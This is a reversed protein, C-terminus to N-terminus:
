EGRGHGSLELIALMREPTLPWRRSRGGCADAVANAIAPLPADIAIEGVGKMGFPGTHETEAVTELDMPPADLSCPIIYTALDPTLLRGQDSLIEEHLAWGIGQVIGGHMQQRYLDPNILRGCDTAALYRCVRVAGTLTDIEVLALHAAFSFVLHPIGHMRLVPDVAPNDRATPARHRSVANREAENM